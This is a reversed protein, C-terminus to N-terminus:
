TDSCIQEYQFKKIYFHLQFFFIFNCVIWINMLIMIQMRYQLQRNYNYYGFIQYIYVTIFHLMVKYIIKFKRLPLTKEKDNANRYAAYYIEGYSKVQTCDLVFFIVTCWLACKITVTMRSTMLFVRAAISFFYVEFSYM